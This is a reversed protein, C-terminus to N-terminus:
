VYSCNSIFIHTCMFCFSTKVNFMPMSQVDMNKSPTDDKKYNVNSMVNNSGIGFKTGIEMCNNELEKISYLKTIDKFVKDSVLDAKTVM